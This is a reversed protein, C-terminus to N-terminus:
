VLSRLREKLSESQFFVSAEERCISKAAAAVAPDKTQSLAVLATEREEPYRPWFRWKRARIVAELYRIANNKLVILAFRLFALASSESYEFWLQRDLVAVVIGQWEQGLDERRGMELFLKTRSEDSIRALVGLAQERTLRLSALFPLAAAQLEGSQSNMAKMVLRDFDGEKWALGGWYPVTRAMRESGWSFMTAEFDSTQSQIFELLRVIGKSRKQELLIDLMATWADKGFFPLIEKGTRFGEDSELSELVLKMAEPKKLTAKLSAVFSDVLPKLHAHKKLSQFRKLMLLILGSHFRHLVSQTVSEFRKRLHTLPLNSESEETLCVQFLHELLNFEIHNADYSEFESSIADIEDPHFRVIASARESYAVDSLHVKLQAVESENLTVAAHVFYKSSPLAWWHDREKEKQRIRFAETESLIPNSEGGLSTLSRGARADEIDVPGTENRIASEVLGIEDVNLLANYVQIKLHNFKNRWLISALDLSGVDQPKLSERLLLCWEFLEEGTLGRSVLISKVGECFLAYYMTLEPRDARFVERGDALVAQMLFDFRVLGADFDSSNLSSQLAADTQQIHRDLQRRDGRYFAVLKYLREFDRFVSASLAEQKM